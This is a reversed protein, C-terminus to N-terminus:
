PNPMYEWFDKLSHSFNHGGGIYAAGNITFCVSNHRGDTNGTVSWRNTTINYKCFYPYYADPLLYADNDIVFVSRNRYFLNDIQDALRNFSGTTASYEWLEDAGTTGNSTLIYGKNGHSFSIDAYGRWVDDPVFDDLQEWSDTDVSYKWFNNEKVRTCVVYGIENIVFSTMGENIRPFDAVQEWTNNLIDYKWFDQTDNFGGIYAYDGIVFATMQSRYPGPFTGTEQWKNVSPDYRYTVITNNSSFACYGYQQHSFNYVASTSYGYDPINGKNLWNDMIRIQSSLEHEQEATQIRVTVDRSDYVGDPIIVELKNNTANVPTAHEENFFVKNNTNISNFNQGELYITQGIKVETDSVNELLPPDVIFLDQAYEKIANVSVCLQLEKQNAAPPIQVIIKQDSAEIIDSVQENFTVRLTENAIFDSGIITVEDGFSGSQPSFSNIVPKRYTFYDTSSVEHDHTKIIIKVQEENEKSPVIVKLLSDSDLTVKGPLEGFFVNNNKSNFRKGKVSITDGWNAIGPEFANIEPPLSGNSMFRVTTGYITFEDTKAFSKVFYMKDKILPGESRYSYTGTGRKENFRVIESENYFLNPVTDWLFGYEIIPNTGMSLIDAYFTAGEPTINSVELTKIRPYEQSE